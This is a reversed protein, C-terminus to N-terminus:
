IPLKLFSNILFYPWYFIIERVYWLIDKNHNISNNFPSKLLDIISGKQNMFNENIKEKLKTKQTKLSSLKKKLIAFNLPLVREYYWTLFYM